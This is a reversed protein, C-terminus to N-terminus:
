EVFSLAENQYVARRGILKHESELLHQFCRHDLYVPSEQSRKTRLYIVVITGCNQIRSITGTMM